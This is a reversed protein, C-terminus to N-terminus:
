AAADVLKKLLNDSAQVVKSCMEYARQYKILGTIESIANVNSKELYGQSLFGFGSDGPTGEVEEGASDSLTYLSGGEPNLDDPNAFTYLKIEGKEEPASSGDANKIRIEVVGNPKIRVSRNDAEIDIEEVGTLSM